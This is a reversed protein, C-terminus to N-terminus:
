GKTEQVTALRFSFTSGKGLQSAVNLPSGHKELIAQTISLGLGIGRAKTTYLPETIRRLDDPAIGVGTDTVALELWPSEARASIALRGGEPMADAANRVLNAVVIRIQNGDGLVRPLPAPLDVEVMIPPPLSLSELVDEVCGEIAFPNMQPLPLKAFDSLATIVRDALQVQKDIRHLHEATKEPSPQHAHLLYYVSTKVVNLPNRLEHAVGGAVQGITSMREARQQRLQYETQYADEIIALDLDLLMRLSRKAVLLEAGEGKWAKALASFLGNRLRSLAANTYIQDLGIEVHRWGVRWRRAVYEADYRGSFLEVLWGRLTGKLRAIQEEGGTVVRRTEDHRNIEAYFDDIMALFHPELLPGISQVRRADEDTWGVYAQLVRYREFPQSDAEAMGTVSGLFCVFGAALWERSARAGM